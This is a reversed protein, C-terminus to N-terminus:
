IIIPFEVCGLHAHINNFVSSELSHNSELSHDSELSHNAEDAQTAFNATTATTANGHLDGTVFPVNISTNFVVPSIGDLSTVYGVELNTVRALDTDFDVPLVNQNLIDQYYQNVATM